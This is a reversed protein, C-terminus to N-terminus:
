GIMEALREGLFVGLLCGCVSLIVYAGGPIYAKDELLKYAELSFTSFTTFGGCVGTKWFLVLNPSVNKQESIGVIFGILIAGLINTVLTLLPFQTKVPILSIAYRVVAGIAGGLAVFIYNM